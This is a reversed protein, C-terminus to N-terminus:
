RWCRGRAASDQLWLGEAGHGHLVPRVQVVVCVPFIYVCVVEGFVSLLWDTLDPRYRRLASVDGTYAAFLLNIVSKVQSFGCFFRFFNFDLSISILHPLQQTFQLHQLSTTSVWGRTEERAAPIWNKQLTGWITTTTFTAFPFWTRFSYCIDCLCRKLVSMVCTVSISNLEKQWGQTLIFESLCLQAKM